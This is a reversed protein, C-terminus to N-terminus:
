SMNPPLTRPKILHLTRPCGGGLRAATTNPPTNSQLADFASEQSQPSKKDRRYGDLVLLVGTLEVTGINDIPVTAEDATAEIHWVNDAKCNHEGSASGKLAQGTGVRFSVAGAVSTSMDGSMSVRTVTNDDDDEGGADADCDLSDSSFGSAALTLNLSDSSYDFSSAAEWSNDITNMSFAVTGGVNAIGAGGAIRGRVSGAFDWNWQITDPLAAVDKEKTDDSSGLSIGYCTRNDVIGGRLADREADGLLGIIGESISRSGRSPASNIARALLRDTSMRGLNPVVGSTENQRSRFATFNLAFDELTVGEVFTVKGLAGAEIQFVPTRTGPPPLTSASFKEATVGCYYTLSGTLNDVRLNDGLAVLAVDATFRDGAECPYSMHAKGHVKFYPTSGPSGKSVAVDGSINFNEVSFTGNVVSFSSSINLGDGSFVPPLAPKGDGEHGNGMSVAGRVSGLVDFREQGRKRKITVHAEGSHLAVVGRIIPWGGVDAVLKLETTADDGVGCTKGRANVAFSSPAPVDVDDGTEVMTDARTPDVSLTLEGDLEAGTKCGNEDRGAFPVVGSLDFSFGSATAYSLEVGLAGAADGGGIAIEGDLKVRAPFADTPGFDVGVGGSWSWGLTAGGWAAVLNVAPVNVSGFRLEEVPPDYGGWMGSLSTTKMTVEASTDEASSPCPLSVDVQLTIPFPLGPPAIVLVGVTRTPHECPFDIRVGQVKLQMGGDHYPLTVDATICTEEDHSSFLNSVLDVPGLARRVCTEQSSEEVADAPACRSACFVAVVILALLHRTRTPHAMPRIGCACSTASREEASRSEDAIQRDSRLPTDSATEM